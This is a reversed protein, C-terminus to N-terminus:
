QINIVGRQQLDILISALGERYRGQQGNGGFPIARFRTAHPLGAREIAEKVYERIGIMICIIETCQYEKFRKALSPISERNHQQRNERGTNNIPILCLDDLFFGHGKFFNLFDNHNFPINAEPFALSFAERTYTTLTDGTYFFDGSAPASEGILLVKVIKPRYSGRITEIENMEVAQM